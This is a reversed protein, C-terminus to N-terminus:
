EQIEFIVSLDNINKVFHTLVGFNPYIHIIIETKIVKIFQQNIEYIM